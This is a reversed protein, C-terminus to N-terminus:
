CPLVLKSPQFGTSVLQFLDLGEWCEIHEKWFSICNNSLVWYNLLYIKRVDSHYQPRGGQVLSFLGPLAPRVRRRQCCRLSAWEWFEMSGHPKRHDLFQINGGPFNGQTFVSYVTSLISLICSTFIVYGPTFMGEQSQIKEPWCFLVVGQIQIQGQSPTSLTWGPRDPLSCKFCTEM